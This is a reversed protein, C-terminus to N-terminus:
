GGRPINPIPESTTRELSLKQINRPMSINHREDSPISIFLCRNYETIIISSKIWSYEASDLWQEPWVQKDICPAPAALDALKVINSLPHGDNESHRAPFDQEVHFAGVAGDQWV